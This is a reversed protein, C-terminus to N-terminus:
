GATNNVQKLETALFMGQINSNVLMLSSVKDMSHSGTCLAKWGRMFWLNNYFEDNSLLCLVHGAMKNVM